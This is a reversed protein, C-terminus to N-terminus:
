DSYEWTINNPDPLDTMYSLARKKDWHAILASKIERKCRIKKIEKARTLVRDCFAIPFYKLSLSSIDLFRVNKESNFDSFMLETLISLNNKQQTNLNRFGKLKPLLLQKPYSFINSPEFRNYLPVDVWELESFVDFDSVFRFLNYALAPNYKKYAVAYLDGIGKNFLTSVGEIKETKKDISIYTDTFIVSVIDVSSLYPNKFLGVLYKKIDKETPNNKSFPGYWSLAKPKFKKIIEINDEPNSKGLDITYINKATVNLDRLVNLPVSVCDSIVVRMIKSPQHNIDVYGCKKIFLDVPFSLPNIGVRICNIFTFSKINKCLDIYNNYAACASFNVFSIHSVADRKDATLKNKLINEVSDAFNFIEEQKDDYTIKIISYLFGDSDRNLTDSPKFDFPNGRGKTISQYIM